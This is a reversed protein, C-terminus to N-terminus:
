VKIKESKESKKFFLQSESGHRRAPWSAPQAWCAFRKGFLQFLRFFRFFDLNLQSFVPTKDNTMIKWATLKEEFLRFLRFFDLNLQSFVPIKFGHAWFVQTKMALGQNKQSKELKKLFTSVKSFWLLHYFVQTKVALDQNKWVKGLKQLFTSLTFFWSFHYFVQTKVALGQNKWIKGVKGVKRSFIKSNPSALWSSLWGALQGSLWGASRGARRWGAAM